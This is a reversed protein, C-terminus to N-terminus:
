PGSRQVSPAMPSYDGLVPPAEGLLQQSHCKHGERIDRSPKTCPSTRRGLWQEVRGQFGNEVAIKYASKGEAGTAGTDGKDGKEGQAGTDGEDGKEGDIGDKGSAGILSNLWEAETGKYGNKVALEYASEGDAGVEGALSALWELETGDYGNKVALEYASKGDQNGACGVLGCVLVISLISAALRQINRKM